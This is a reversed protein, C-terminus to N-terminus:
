TMMEELRLRHDGGSDLFCPPQRLRLIQSHPQTAQIGGRTLWIPDVERGAGRDLELELGLLERESFSPEDVQDVKDDEVQGVVKRAVAVGRM